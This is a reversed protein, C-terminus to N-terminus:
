FKYACDYGAAFGASYAFFNVGFDIAYKYWKRKPGAIKVTIASMLCVNGLTKTAHYRDTLWVLSQTSQWFKPGQDPDGNKYKNQWTLAPNWKTMDASKYAYAFDDPHFKLVEATGHMTGGVFCLGSTVLLNRWEQKTMIQGFTFNSILLLIILPKM